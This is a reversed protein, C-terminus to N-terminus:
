LSASAVWRRFAAEDGRFVNLDIRGKVGQSLGSGSYQWFLWERNPYRKSPHAAVSRLWFPYEKFEGKLNDEYFDPATYIIPKQGYHAELRDMFVKMKELVKARPLNQNCKSQHNWEVDIVPPLAGKEKPVHRIFWDAQQSAYRCWYFFHYAGRPVGAKAAAEWNAKFMPDLHDGGDTAKIFAFNTGHARLKDWDMKAQWRSVDIGHVAHHKPTVKGFDIPHADSFRAKHITGDWGRSPVSPRPAVAAMAVQIKGAAGKTEAYAVEAGEEMDRAQEEALSTGVAGSPTRAAVVSGTTESSVDATSINELAAGSSCAALALCLLPAVARRFSPM